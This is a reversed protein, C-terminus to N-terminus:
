QLEKVSCLISPTNLCTLRIWEQRVWAYAITSDEPYYCVSVRSNVVSPDALKPHSYTLSSIRVSGQNTVIVTETSTSPLLLIEIMPNHFFQDSSEPTEISRAPLLTQEQYNEISAEVLKRVEPLLFHNTNAPNRYSPDSVYNAIFAKIFHELREKTSPVYATQLTQLTLQLQAAITDLQKGQLAIGEFLLVKPLKGFRTICARLLMLVYIESPSAFSIYSVLPFEDRRDVLLGVWPHGCILKPELSSVVLQDLQFYVILSEESPRLTPNSTPESM